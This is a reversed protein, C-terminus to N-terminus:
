IRMGNSEIYSLVVEYKEFRESTTDSSFARCVTKKSSFTKRIFLLLSLPDFNSANGSFYSPFTCFLKCLSRNNHSSSVVKLSQSQLHSLSVHQNNRFTSPLKSLNEHRSINTKTLKSISLKRRSISKHRFEIWQQFKNNKTSRCWRSTLPM